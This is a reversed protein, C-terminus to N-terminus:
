KWTCHVFQLIWYYVHVSFNYEVYEIYLVCHAQFLKSGEANIGLQEHSDFHLM